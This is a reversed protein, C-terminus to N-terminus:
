RFTYARRKSFWPTFGRRPGVPVPRRPRRTAPSAPWPPMSRPPPARRAAGREHPRAASGPEAPRHPRRAARRPPRGPVPRLRGAARRPRDAFGFAVLALSGVSLGRAWGPAVAPASVAVYWAVLAPTPVMRLSTGVAFEIGVFTAGEPVPSTRARTEPGSISAYERGQRQWFVLRWCVAAVSTMEQVRESTCTWITDVWPSDSARAEFRLAM